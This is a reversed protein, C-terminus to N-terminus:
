FIEINNFSSNEGLDDVVIVVIHPKRESSLPTFFFLALFIFGAAAKM